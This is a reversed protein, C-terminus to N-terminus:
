SWRNRDYRSPCMLCAAIGSPGQPWAKGREGALEFVQGEGGSNLRYLFRDGQLSFIMQDEQTHITCSLHPPYKHQNPDTVWVHHCVVKVAACDDGVAPCFSGPQINSLHNSSPSSSM